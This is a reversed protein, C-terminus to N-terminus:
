EAEADDVREAILKVESYGRVAIIMALCGTFHDTEPHKAAELACGYGSLFDIAATDRKKGTLGLYEARWVFKTCAIKLQNPM